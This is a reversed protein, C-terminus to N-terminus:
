YMIIYGTRLKVSVPDQCDEVSFNGVFDADVYCDVRKEYTPSLIMGKNSTAKLYWLIRKVAVTHSNRPAHSFRAAQHVAYAIDPRTNAALYMLMGVVTHYEWTEDFAPGEADTGVPTSGTPTSVGNCDSMNSAALVKEILGSHVLAFLRPGIKTIQIELFAGVEEKNCLQFVHRREASSVGQQHIERELILSDPGAFITDDVYVVCMIGQKLFYARTMRLNCMDGSWCVIKYSKLSLDHRKDADM